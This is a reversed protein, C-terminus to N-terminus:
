CCLGRSLRSLAPDGATKNAPCCGDAREQAAMPGWLAVGAAARGLFRHYIRVGCAVCLSLVLCDAWAMGFWVFFPAADREQTGPCAISAAQFRALCLEDQQPLAFLMLIDIHGGGETTQVPCVEGKTARLQRGQSVDMGVIPGQMQMTTQGPKPDKFM